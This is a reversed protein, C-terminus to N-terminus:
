EESILVAHVVLRSDKDLCTSLTLIRNATTVETNLAVQSRSKIKNLFAAYEEETDFNIYLYDSTVEIGYISFIKWTMKKNLTNFSIYLNENVTYWSPKLTNKLTAFMVDSHYNNHAYIITNQDTANANNRYDMFVWGYYDRQKYYNRSLYYSNDKTQVVPYDIKTNNVKLWGKTDKNITLLKEYSTAETIVMSDTVVETNEVLLSKVDSTISDVRKQSEYDSYSVYGITGMVLVFVLISCTKLTTFIVQKLYNSELYDKSYVLSLKIKSSALESKLVKLEAIEDPDNIDEYVELLINKRRYEKLLNGMIKVNDPVYKLFSVSKLYKNISFLSRIDEVDEVSLKDDIKVNRPYYIKSYSDLGNNQMFASTFLVENRSESIVNNKDLYEIIFTPISYSNIKAINKNRVIKECISYPIVDDENFTICEIKPVKTLLELVIHAMDFSDIVINVVDREKILDGIFLGAIKQNEILYTDSFMLEDNSIVNTNLLNSSVPKNETYKFLLANDLISITIKKM